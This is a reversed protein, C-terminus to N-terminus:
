VEKLWKIFDDGDCQIADPYIPDGQAFEAECKRRYADMEARLANTEPDLGADIDRQRQAALVEIRAMYDEPFSGDDGAKPLEPDAAFRSFVKDLIAQAVEQRTVLTGQVAEPITKQLLLLVQAMAEQHLGPLEGWTLVGMEAECRALREIVIVEVLSLCANIIHIHEPSNTDYGLHSILWPTTRSQYVVKASPDM